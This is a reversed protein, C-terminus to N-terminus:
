SDEATDNTFERFEEFKKLAKGSDIAEAAIKVGEEFGSAKGAVILGAAANMLVVERKASKEGKLVDLFVKKHEEVSDAKLENIDVDLKLNFTKIEGDKLHTIKTDGFIEDVGDGYVVMANKMGNKKLTEAFLETLSSDYVGIVQADPSAPNLLPGLMNFVTRVGLKKRVPAVNKFAPHYLPAFMFGIGVKEICERTKESSIKINVGLSELVDASGCKSSVSKNGHKAVAVGCAALVFAAVTSINFTGSKDGGTGCTDVLVDVDPKIKVAFEKLVEVFSSLEDANVGKNQLAIM